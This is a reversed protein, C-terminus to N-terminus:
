DFDKDFNIDSLTANKEAVLEAILEFAQKLKRNVSMESLLMAKAIEKKSYDQQYFM